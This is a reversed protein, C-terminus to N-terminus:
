FPPNSENKLLDKAYNIGKESLIFDEHNTTARVDILNNAALKICIVEKQCGWLNGGIKEFAKDIDIRNFYKYIIKVLEDCLKEYCFDENKLLDKAYDIGKESLIFDEHDTTVRVDILNNAALKICIVETKCGCLNKEIKEFAKDIDIRNNNKYIIKVVEDCLKEYYPEPSFYGEYEDENPYPDLLDNPWDEEGEEPVEYDEAGGMHDEWDGADMDDFSESWDREDDVM